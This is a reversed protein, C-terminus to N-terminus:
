YMREITGSYVVPGTPQGTPSGGPPEVSVALSPIDTLSEGAPLRLPVNVVAGSPIVGLSRPAGTQPLAWLEFVRGPSPAANAVAKVTLFRDGRSATAILAPKADAGALVVVISAAPRVPSRTWDAIGLAVAIVLSAVAVSRWVALREWWPAAAAERQDLGLGSAIATWVRPPPNVPPVTDALVALRREWARLARAVTPDRAAIAQLRRRVRPPATGLAFEAALRELRETRDARALNM